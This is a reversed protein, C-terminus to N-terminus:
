ATDNALESRPTIPIRKFWHPPFRMNMTDVRAIAAFGARGAARLSDRVKRAEVQVENAEGAGQAQAALALMAADSLLRELSEEYSHGWIKANGKVKHKLGAVEDSLKEVKKELRHIRLIGSSRYAISLSM